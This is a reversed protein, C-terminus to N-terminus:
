GAHHFPRSKQIAPVMQHSQHSSQHTLQEEHIQSPQHHPSCHQSNASGLGLSRWPTHSCDFKRTDSVILQTPRRKGSQCPRALRDVLDKSGTEKGLTTRKEVRAVKNVKILQVPSLVPSASGILPHPFENTSVKEFYDWWCEIAKKCGNIRQGNEDHVDETQHYRSKMLCHLGTM